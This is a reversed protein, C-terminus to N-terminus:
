GSTLRRIEEKIITEALTPVVEWVVKEVVERSLALVADAQERSLGLAGLKQAMESGNGTHAHAAASVAPAAAPAPTWYEAGLGMEGTESTTQHAIPAEAGPVSGGTLVGMQANGDDVGVALQEVPALQDGEPGGDSRVDLRDHGAVQNLISNEIRFFKQELTWSTIFFGHRLLRSQRAPGSQNM